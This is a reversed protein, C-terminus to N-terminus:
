GIRSNSIGEGVAQFINELFKFYSGTIVTDWDTSNEQNTVCPGQFVLGDTVLSSDPTGANYLTTVEAASLIRNYIRVDKLEGHWTATYEHTDTKWNGIVVRAGYESNLTGSPTLSETISQSVGNIYIVPNAATDDTDFTVVVHYWGEAPLSNTPSNWQGPASAFKNTYVVVRHNSSVEIYIGGGDAFPGSLIANGNTGYSGGDDYVWAAYSRDATQVVQPLYGYDIAEPYGPGYMRITLPTLNGALYSWHEVLGWTCWILGGVQVKFEVSQIFYGGSIGMHTEAIQVLDGVDLHLFATLTDSSANALFTISQLVTRPYRDHYLQTKVAAEGNTLDEQYKQDFSREFYGYQKTSIDEVTLETEAYTYVGKGRLQFFTIYGSSTSTNKVSISASNGGFTVNVEANSTLDTGTGDALTNVTYDTTAVPIVMDLGGASQGGVPDSYSGSFIKTEGNGIEMARSLSYLVVLSTDVKRPYATVAIRNATNQGHQVDLDIMADSFAVQETASVIRTDGAETIRTDGAETIRTDLEASIVPILSIALLGSRYNADEFRLEEGSGAAKRLYLYGLESEVIKAFESTAVSKARVLDFVSPFTNLGTELSKAAPKIPMSSLILDIAEDARKNVQLAPTTIPHEAAYNMWDVVTVDATTYGALNSSLRIGDLVGIFRIYPDGDYVMTIKIQIGKQWGAVVNAGDPTYSGDYNNLTFELTGTDAMRDNPTTGNIGWKAGIDSIVDGTIDTWGATLYAYVAYSDLRAETM